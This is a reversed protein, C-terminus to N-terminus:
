NGLVFCKMLIWGIIAIDLVLGAYFFCRSAAGDARCLSFAFGEHFPYFLKVKKKNLLDLAMHSAMAAAFPVAAAPLMLYVSGSLLALGLFSHTFSRHPRTKGFICIAFFLVIGAALGMYGNQRVMRYIGFRFCCELYVAAVLIVFAAGLLKNFDRRAESTSVDIDSIVGGVAAAGVCILMEKPTEPMVVALSAAIGMTMHTKGTMQM